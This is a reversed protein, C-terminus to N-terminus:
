SITNKPLEPFYIKLENRPNEDMYIKKELIQGFM